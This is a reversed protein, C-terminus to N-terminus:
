LLKPIATNIKVNNKLYREQCVCIHFVNSFMVPHFNFLLSVSLKSYDKESGQYSCASIFMLSIITYLM